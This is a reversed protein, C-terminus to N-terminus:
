INGNVHLANSPSTTGIGVNGTNRSINSGNLTWLNSGATAADVYAKTTLHTSATPTAASATGSITVNGGSISLVSANELALSVTGAGNGFGFYAGRQGSNNRM